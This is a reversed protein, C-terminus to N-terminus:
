EHNRRWQEDVLDEFSDEGTRGKREMFAIANRLHRDSMDSVLIPTGDGQIWFAREDECADAAMNGIHQDYLADAETQHDDTM